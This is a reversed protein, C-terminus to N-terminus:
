VFPCYKLVVGLVVIDSLSPNKLLLIQSWIVFIKPSFVISLLINQPCFMNAVALISLFYRSSLIYQHRFMNVVFYISSLGPERITPCLWLFDTQFEGGFGCRALGVSSAKIPASQFPNDVGLNPILCTLNEPESQAPDDILGSITILKEPCM